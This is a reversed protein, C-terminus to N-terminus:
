SSFRASIKQLADKFFARRIEREDPGPLHEQHFAVVTKGDKPIARVQITSARPYDPPHWRMRLHSDSHVTVKGKTGDPLTFETGESLSDVPIEGLWTKLGPETTLFDWIGDSGAAVTKRAGIQWGADKTKGVPTNM